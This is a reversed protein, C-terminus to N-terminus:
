AAPAAVVRLKLMANILFFAYDNVNIVQEIKDAALLGEISGLCQLMKESSSYSMYIHAMNNYLALLLWHCSSAKVDVDSQGRVIAVAMVYFKLAHMLLSAKGKEIARVHNALAMNYLVVGTLLTRHHNIPALVLAQAYVFILSSDHKQAFSEETWLPVGLIGQKQDVMEDGNFSASSASSPPADLKKNVSSESLDGEENHELFCNKLGAIATRLLYTAKKYEGQRLFGVANNNLEIVKGFNM